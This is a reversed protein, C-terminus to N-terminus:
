RPYLAPNINTIRAFTKKIDAAVSEASIVRPTEGNPADKNTDITANKPKVPTLNKAFRPMEETIGYLPSDAVKSSKEIISFKIDMQAALPVQRKDDIEWSEGLENFNTNLLTVYGPQETYVNGITLRVINPQFIGRNFGYPFVLGTLYNIRRWVAELEDPGFAVIGLKFSIERQVGIYNVFKEMRGIYQYPKYEPTATQNLDKIFARFQVPDDKGMAFSINVIDTFKHNIPKYAEQVKAFNSNIEQNSPDKIYSIKQKFVKREIDLSPKRNISVVGDVEEGVTLSAIGGAYTKETPLTRGASFYKIFKNEVEAHIQQYLVNSINVQTIISDRALEPRSTEWTKEEGVNRKLLPNLASITNIIPSFASALKNGVTNKILSGIKAFLNSKSKPGVNLHESIYTPMKWRALKDYSETQMTGMKKVNNYSTDTKGVLESLPRLNRKIHLFPVANAIVFAPNIIRTFKFTNGTQLLQQKALFLLGRSSLSFLTLRKVDQITSVVPLGRGELKIGVQGDGPKRVILPDDNRGNSAKGGEFKLTAGAYLKNVNENFRQELNKFAM